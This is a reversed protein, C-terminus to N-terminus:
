SKMVANRRSRQFQRPRRKKRSKCIPSCCIWTTTPIEEWKGTPFASKLGDRFEKANGVLVIDMDKEGFYEACVQKVKELSVARIREPYTDPYDAPLDYIAVELVRNAVAAATESQIPYVGALYDRAVDMEAPTAGDAAMKAMLDVVLKTAEVTAETRTYTKAAFSGTYKM